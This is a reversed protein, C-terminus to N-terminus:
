QGQRAAEGRAILQAVEPGAAKAILDAIRGWSGDLSGAPVANRQRITGIERLDPFLVVWDIAIRQRGALPPDLKVTGAVVYGGGGVDAGVRNGDLALVQRMALALRKNGDGPAGKVDPVAISLRASSAAIQPGPAGDIQKVVEAIEPVAGAVIREALDRDLTQWRSPAGRIRQEFSIVEAGTADNLAWGVRGFLTDEVNGRGPLKQGRVVIGDINGTAATAAVGSERLALVLRNRILLAMDPSFGQPPLVHVSRVGVGAVM